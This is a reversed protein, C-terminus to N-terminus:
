RFFINHCHNVEISAQWTTPKKERTALKSGSLYAWLGGGRPTFIILRNHTALNVRHADGLPIRANFHPDVFSVEHAEIVGQDVWVRQRGLLKDQYYKPHGAGTRSWVEQLELSKFMGPWILSGIRRSDQQTTNVVSRIVIRYSPPCIQM